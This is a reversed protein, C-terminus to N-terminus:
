QEGSAGAHVRARLAAKPRELNPEVDSAGGIRALNERVAGELSACAALARDFAEDVDQPRINQPLNQGVCFGWAQQPDSPGQGSRIRNVSEILAARFRSRFEGAQGTWSGGLRDFVIATRREHEVCLDLAADVLAEASRGDQIHSGIYNSRCTAWDGIVQTVEPPVTQVTASSGSALATFGSGALAATAIGIMLLVAVRSM